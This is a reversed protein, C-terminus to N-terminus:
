CRLSEARSGAKALCRAKKGSFGQECQGLFDAIQSADDDPKGPEKRVIQRLNKEAARCEPSTARSSKGYWLFLTVVVMVAFVAIFLPKRALLDSM